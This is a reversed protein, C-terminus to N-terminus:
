PTPRGKTKLDEIEDFLIEILLNTDKEANILEDPKAERNLFKELKIKLKDKIEQKM